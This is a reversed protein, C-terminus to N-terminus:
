FVLDLSGSFAADIRVPSEHDDPNSRNLVYAMQQYQQLNVNQLDQRRLHKEADPVRRNLMGNMSNTITPGDWTLASATNMLRM